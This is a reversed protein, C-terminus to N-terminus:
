WSIREEILFGCCVPGSDPWPYVACEVPFRVFPFGQAPSGPLDGSRDSPGVVPRVPHGADQRGPMPIDSHKVLSIIGSIKEPMLKKM